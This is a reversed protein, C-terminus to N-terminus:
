RFAMLDDDFRTLSDNGNDLCTPESANRFDDSHSPQVVLFNARLM